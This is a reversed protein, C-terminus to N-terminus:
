SFFENYIIKNEKIKKRLDNYWSEINNMIDGIEKIPVTKQTKQISIM